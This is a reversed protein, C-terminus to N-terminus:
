LDEGMSPDSGFLDGTGAGRKPRPPLNQNPHPSAKRKKRPPTLKLAPPKPGSAPPSLRVPEPPPDAEERVLEGRRHLFLVNAGPSYGVSQDDVIARGAAQEMRAGESLTVLAVKAYARARRIRIVLDRLETSLEAFRAVKPHTCDPAAEDPNPSGCVLCIEATIKLPTAANM